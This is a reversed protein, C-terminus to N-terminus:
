EGYKIKNYIEMYERESVGLERWPKGSPKSSRGGGTIASTMM